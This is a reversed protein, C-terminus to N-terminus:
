SLTRQGPKLESKPLWRNTALDWFHDTRMVSVLHQWAYEKARPWGTEPTLCIGGNVREDGLYLKWYYWQWEGPECPLSDLCVRYDFGHLRLTRTQNQM